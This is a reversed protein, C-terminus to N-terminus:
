KAIHLVLRLEQPGTKLTGQWDGAINQAHAASPAFVSLAAIHLTNKM